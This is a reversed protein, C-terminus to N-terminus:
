FIFFILSIFNFLNKSTTYNNKVKIYKFYLNYFLILFFIKSHNLKNKLLIKINLMMFRQILRVGWSEVIM